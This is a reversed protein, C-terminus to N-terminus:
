AAFVKARHAIGRVAGDHEFIARVADPIASRVKEHGHYKEAYARLCRISIDPCTTWSGDMVWGNDEWIASMRKYFLLPDRFGLPGADICQGPRAGSFFDIWGIACGPTDCSPVEVAYFDWLEPKAEILDATEMIADYTTMVNEM